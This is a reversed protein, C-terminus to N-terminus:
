TAEKPVARTARGREPQLKRRRRRGIWADPLLGELFLLFFAPLLLLAYRDEDVTVRRAERVEQRMRRRERRIQDVGVGGQSARIYRGGTVEAIETLAEENSASLASTIPNGDDGLM